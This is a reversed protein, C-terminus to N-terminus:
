SASPESIELFESVKEIVPEDYSKGNIVLSLRDRTFGTSEALENVSMRGHKFMSARVSACWEDSPGRPKPPLGSIGLVKNVQEAFEAYNARVYRGHMMSSLVQSRIGARKAVEYLPIGMAGAAKKVTMGWDSLKSIPKRDM